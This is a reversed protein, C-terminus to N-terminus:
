ARYDFCIGADNSRDPLFAVPDFDRPTYLSPPPNCSKRSFLEVAGLRPPRPPSRPCSRIASRAYAEAVLTSCIRARDGTASFGAHRRALAGARCRAFFACCTSFTRSTTNCAPPQRDHIRRCPRPEEPALGSARGIRTNYPRNASSLPVAVVAKALEGRNLRPRESGTRDSPCPM